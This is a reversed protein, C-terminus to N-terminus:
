HQRAVAWPRPLTSEPGIVESKSETCRCRHYNEAMPRQGFTRSYEALWISRHVMCLHADEELVNWFRVAVTLCTTSRIILTSAHGGFNTMCPPWFAYYFTRSVGPFNTWRDVQPCLQNSNKCQSGSISHACRNNDNFGSLQMAVLTALCFTNNSLSSETWRNMSSSCRGTQGYRAVSKFQPSMVKRDICLLINKIGRDALLSCTLTERGVLIFSTCM